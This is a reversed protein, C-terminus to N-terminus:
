FAVFSVASLTFLSVVTTVLVIGTAYEPNNRHKEALMPLAAMTPLGAAVTVVQVMATDLTGLGILPPVFTLLAWFGIPFALLRVLMGVYFDPYKLVGKWDRLALLGGIYIMSLPTSTSGVSHMPTLLDDPIRIGILIALVALTVGVLPPNILGKLRAAWNKAPNDDMPTSRDEVRKCIAAGYTWLVVQDIISMLAFYLAGREPFVALIIPLGIFGGNGFIFAAQFIRGRNVELRMLHALLRFIVILLAYMLSMMVLIAGSDILDHRTAGAVANSFVMLPLTAKLILNCIGSLAQEGLVKAKVCIFGVVMMVGMGILQDLVIRFQEM